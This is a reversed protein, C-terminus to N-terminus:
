LAVEEQAYCVLYAGGPVVETVANIAFVRTGDRFRQGPKPRSPAGQAAGRVTIRYTIRSLAVEQGGTARGTGIRLDAWVTGLPAWNRTYGGAGDDAQVPHELVLKHSLQVGSM